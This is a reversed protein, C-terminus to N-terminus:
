LGGGNCLNNPAELEISDPDINFSSIWKKTVAIAESIINEDGCSDVSIQFYSSGTSYVRYSIIVMLNDKITEVHPSYQALYRASDNHEKENFSFNDMCKFDGYKIESADHLCSLVVPSSSLKVSENNSWEYQVYYSQHLGDIDVIFEGNYIDNNASSLISGDRITAGSGVFSDSSNREVLKYLKQEMDRVTDPPISPSVNSINDIRFRPTHDLSLFYVISAVIVVIVFPIALILLRRKPKEEFYDSLRRKFRSVSM